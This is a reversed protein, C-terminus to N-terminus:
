CRLPQKSERHRSLGLPNLHRGAHDLYRGKRCSIRRSFCPRFYGFRRCFLCCPSCLVKLTSGNEGVGRQRYALTTLERCPTTRASLASSRPRSEVLRHSQFRDVDPRHGYVRQQKVWPRWLFRSPHTGSKAAALVFYGSQRLFSLFEHGLSQGLTRLLVAM